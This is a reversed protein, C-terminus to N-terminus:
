IKFCSGGLFERLISNNPIDESNVGLFYDLFKLLRKAEVYHESNEDLIEGLTTLKIIDANMEAFNVEADGTGGTMVALGKALVSAGDIEIDKVEPVIKISSGGSTAGLVSGSWGTGETYKLGKFWTGAGLLINEPTKETIGHTPLKNEPM